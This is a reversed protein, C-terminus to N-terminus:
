LRVGGIASRELLEYDVEEASSSAHITEIVEIILANIVSLATTTSHVKRFNREHDALSLQQTFTPLLLSELTKVVPSDSVKGIKWVDSIQLTILSLNFVETLYSVCTSGLHQLMLMNIGDLGIIKSSKAKNIVSQVEEDTFTLKVCDWPKKSLRRTVCRKIKDTSFYLTFLERVEEHAHLCPKRISDDYRKPISLVKISLVSM